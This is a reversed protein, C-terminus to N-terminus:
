KAKRKGKGIYEFHYGHFKYELMHYNRRLHRVLGENSFGKRAISKGGGLAVNKLQGFVYILAPSFLDLYEIQHERTIETLAMTSILAHPKKTKFKIDKGPMFLSYLQIMSKPSGCLYRGKGSIVAIEPQPFFEGLFFYQVAQMVPHYVICYQRSLKYQLVLRALNGFGGGIEWFTVPSALQNKCLFNLRALHYLHRMSTRTVYSGLHSVIDSPQGCLTEQYNKLISKLKQYGYLEAIMDLYHEGSGGTISPGLVPHSQFELLSKSTVANKMKQHMDRWVEWRRDTALVAEKEQNRLFGLAKEARKLRESEPSLLPPNLWKIYANM